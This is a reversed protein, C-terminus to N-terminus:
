PKEESGPQPILHITATRTQRARRSAESPYDAQVRVTRAAPKGDITAVEILVTGGDPGGLVDAPITWTEGQYSPDLALRAFARELASEALWEAQLRRQEAVVVRRTDRALRLMTGFILTILLLGVMALVLAAGRRREPRRAVISPGPIFRNEGPRTPPTM